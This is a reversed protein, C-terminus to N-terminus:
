CKIFRQELNGDPMLQLLKIMVKKESAVHCVVHDNIDIGSLHWGNLVTDDADSTMSLSKFDLHLGKGVAKAVAEKMTWFKYFQHLPSKSAIIKEWEFGSFVSSFESIDIQKVEEIDIGLDNDLCTACVVSNGSHSINFRFPHDFYPKKFSDYKIQNIDLELRLFKMGVLLMIRGMLFAQADLEFVFKKSRSIVDTPLHRWYQEILRSFDDKLNSFFITIM